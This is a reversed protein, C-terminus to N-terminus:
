NQEEAPQQRAPDEHPPYYLVKVPYGLEAIAEALQDTTNEAPQYGVVIRRNAATLVVIEVGPLQAISAKLAEEAEAPWALESQMINRVM